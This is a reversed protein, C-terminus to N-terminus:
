VLKSDMKLYQMMKVITMGSEINGKYYSSMKLYLNSILLKEIKRM